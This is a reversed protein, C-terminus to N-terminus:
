RTRALGLRRVVEDLFETEGRGNSMCQASTATSGSIPTATASFHIAIGITDARLRSIQALLVARLRDDDARQGTMSTGCNMYYSMAQGNWRRMLVMATDGMRGAPRDVLTPTVKRAAMTAVLAEWVAPAPAVVKGVVTGDDGRRNYSEGFEGKLTESSRTMAQVPSAVTDTNNAPACAISAGGAFLLGVGAFHRARFTSMTRHVPTSIM